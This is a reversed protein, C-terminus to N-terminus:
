RAYRPIGGLIEEFRAANKHSLSCKSLANYNVRAHEIKYGDFVIIAGLRRPLAIIEHFRQCYAKFELKSQQSLDRAQFDLWGSLSIDLSPAVDKVRAEGKPQDALLEDLAWGIGPSQSLPSKSSAISILLVNPEDPSVQSKDPNFNPALKNFVKLYMRLCDYYLSPGKSDATDFNGPRVMQVSKDIKRVQMYRDWAARDEQSDGLVTCEFWVNRGNLSLRIDPRSGNPLASDVEIASQTQKIVCAKICLEFLGSTWRTDEQPNAELFNVVSDPSSSKTCVLRLDSEFETLDAIDRRSVFCFLPPWYGSELDSTPAIEVRDAIEKMKSEPLAKRIPGDSPLAALKERVDQVLEYYCSKDSSDSSTSEIAPDRSAKALM